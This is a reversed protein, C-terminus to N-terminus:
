TCRINRATREKKISREGSKLIHLTIYHIRFLVSDRGFCYFCFVSIEILKQIFNASLERNLEMHLFIRVFYYPLLFLSFFHVAVVRSFFPMVRLDRARTLSIFRNFQVMKVALKSFRLSLRRPSFTSVSKFIVLILPHETTRIFYQILNQGTHLDLLWLWQSRINASHTECFQLLLLLLLLLPISIPFFTSRFNYELPFSHAIIVAFLSHWVRLEFRESNQTHARGDIRVCGIEWYWCGHSM